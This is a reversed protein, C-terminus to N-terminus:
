TIYMHIRLSDSIHYCHYIHMLMSHCSCEPVLRCSVNPTFGNLNPLTSNAVIHEVLHLPCRSCAYAFAHYPEENLPVHRSLFFDLGPLLPQDSVSHKNFCCAELFFM